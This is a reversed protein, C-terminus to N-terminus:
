VNSVEPVGFKCSVETKSGYSWVSTIFNRQMGNKSTWSITSTRTGNDFSEIYRFGPWNSIPLKYPDSL